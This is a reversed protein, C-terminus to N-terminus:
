ESCIRHVLFFTTPYTKAPETTCSRCQSIGGMQMRAIVFWCEEESGLAILSNFARYSAIDFPSEDDQSKKWGSLPATSTSALSRRCRALGIPIFLAGMDKFGGIMVTKVFIARALLLNAHARM